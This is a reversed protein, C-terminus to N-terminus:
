CSDRMQGMLERFVIKLKGKNLLMNGKETRVEAGKKMDTTISYM